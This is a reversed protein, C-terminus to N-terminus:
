SLLVLTGLMIYFLYQYFLAAERKDTDHFSVACVTSQELSCVKQMEFNKYICASKRGYIMKSKLMSDEKKM